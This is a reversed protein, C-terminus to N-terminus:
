ESEEKPIYPVFVKRLMLSSLYAAGAFYIVVWIFGAYFFTLPMRVLVTVPFLWMVAMAATRPLHALGLILANRVTGWVTNQFRSVLPFAICAALLEIGLLVWLFVTAVSVIGGVWNLLHVDLLLMGAVILLLLWILFASKFCERFSQFYRRIVGNESDTGFTFVVSYLAALSPGITLIPISTVLFMLNLLMLDAARSMGRMFPSDPSLTFKLSDMGM